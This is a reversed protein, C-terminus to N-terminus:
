VSQQTFERARRITRDLYHMQNKEGHHNNWNSREDLIRSRIREDSFGKRILALTYAFDTESESNKQYRNRSLSQCVGGLLPQHSLSPPQHTKPTYFADPILAQRNWDIWILKALPFFGQPSQYKEKRNRFGPCRGFRNNPDAGPDSKLIQLLFRKQDLSIPHKSHIWVQFNCPSTEVVMRGPKFSGDPLKHHALLLSDSLDDALLYNSPDAPQILIHRGKANEAKLYPIVAPKPKLTWLAKNLDLVALRWNSLFYRNLKEFITILIRIIQINFPTIFRRYFPQPTRHSLWGM